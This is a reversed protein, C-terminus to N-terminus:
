LDALEGSGLLHHHIFPHIVFFETVANDDGGIAETFFLFGENGEVGYAVLRQQQLKRFQYYGVLRFKDNGRLPIIQTFRGFDLREVQILTVQPKACKKRKAM